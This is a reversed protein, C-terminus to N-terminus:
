PSDCTGQNQLKQGLQYQQTGFDVRCPDLQPVAVCLFIINPGDSLIGAKMNRCLCSLM